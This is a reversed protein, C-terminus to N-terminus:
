APDIRDRPPIRGLPRAVARAGSKLIQLPRDSSRVTRKDKDVIVEKASTHRVRWYTVTVAGRGQLRSPGVAVITAQPDLPITGRSVTSSAYDLVRVLHEGAGLEFRSLFRELAEENEIVFRVPVAPAPVDSM